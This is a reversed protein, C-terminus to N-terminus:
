WKLPSATGGHHGARESGISKAAREETVPSESIGTFPATGAPKCPEPPDNEDNLGYTCLDIRPIVRGTKVEVAAMPHSRLTRPGAGDMLALFWMEAFPGSGSHTVCVQRHLTTEVRRIAEARLRVPHPRFRPALGFYLNIGGLAVGALLASWGWKMRDDTLKHM